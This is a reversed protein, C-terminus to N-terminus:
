RTKIEIEYGNNISVYKVNRMIIDDGRNVLWYNDDEDILKIHDEFVATTVESYWGTRDDLVGVCSVNNKFFDFDILGNEFIPDIDYIGAGPDAAVVVSAYYGYSYIYAAEKLAKELDSFTNEFVNGSKDELFLRYNKM